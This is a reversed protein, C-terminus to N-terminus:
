ALSAIEEESLIPQEVTKGEYEAKYIKGAKILRGIIVNEKLGRLNDVKKTVAAEVLVRITEQFSAASLWSETTLSTRILGLLLREFRAPRKGQEELQKNVNGIRLFSVVQGPLYTSDGSDVIRAKSFMQRVIIEIHKDNITQGQASYISQVENIIYKQATLIDTLNILDVLNLHGDTLTSGAKVNAGEPVRLPSRASIVYERKVLETHAITLKTGSVKVKGRNIARIVDQNKQNKAIIEKPNVIMGDKVLATYGEIDYVDSGLKNATITVANQNTRREISVTGDIEVLVAPTKPTRAEFLEEVRPLGQTIDKVDAVGGSHFTRMTLQTGPEGISQAAIIGVATGLEVTKNYALDRGYCRQCVGDITECTIVSRIFITDIDVKEILRVLNLDIEDGAEALVEGTKPNTIPQALTRGFIRNTLKEGAKKAEAIAIPNIGKTGCDIERVVFDQVADVLRRTLYGANATKLATDSKGKRGGHQAIFYELVHFGEIFNSNINLEITKGAPNAVLGKMGAIQTIQSWTGRAGSDILTFVTGDKDIIKTIEKAIDEKANKWVKLINTYREEDTLLGKRYKRIVETVLEGAQELVEQKKAPVQFDHVALSIGSKTAFKFGVRKIEDVLLSTKEPGCKEYCDGILGGLEKKNLTKNQFGLEEPLFSNFILRGVTTDVLQDKVRAKIKDRLGVYGLRYATIAEHITGFVIKSAKKGEQTLYYCGLVMDLSPPTIAQGDSPKLLNKASLMVEHAEEQAQVSLPLHVAMQDGDFDANFASCVLPHLQIAKGEILVPQFAQIGLRHLTPARNLLVYNMQTIEELADWVESREWEILKEANKINHAHGKQILKGIIFPKFLELAMKKPLGCQHLKLKPGVVIVSRGSYDVRKGLLNQRFRGQKGKLMDSLSKLQLRSSGTKTVARGARASNNILADVAEQLMRKENRCIVEPAGIELLRRLRNNRNIIRRYLDNLDSAAYRGGDLPVMPRIDPPIVPLITMVTWEPRIGSKILNGVLMLRKSIKKRKQGQANKLEERLERLLSVLDINEIVDRIAQAGIGARFVHGFKMSLDRYKLESVVAYKEISKLDERAKEFNETLLSLEEAQEEQYKQLEKAAAKQVRMENAKQEYTEQMRKSRNRYDHELEKVASAKAEQNVDEIIYSAFYVVQELTKISLNLLLGIRSPTSRLFWIHTVPVALKIHGMRERRVSSRTVEVGCRDCVINKYRVKKYKGCYCEWNKTPGFIRECFLGDREPKQTRYNITEPKTVEGYSWSLIQEPSAVSVAIADFDHPIYSKDQRHFSQAM